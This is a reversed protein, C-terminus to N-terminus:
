TVLQIIRREFNSCPCINQEEGFYRSRNQPGGLKMNLPCSAEKGPLFRGPCSTSWEGGNPDSAFFVKDTWYRRKEKFDELLQKRRRGRGGIVKRSGEIKEETVHKILCKM